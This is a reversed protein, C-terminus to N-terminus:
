RRNYEPVNSGGFIVRSPNSELSKLSREVQGLARKGDGVFGEVERVSKSMFSTIGSSIEATRKDINDVMVRLNKAAGATDAFFTDVKGANKALSGTFSELNNVTAALKKEDLAKLVRTIETLSVDFNGAASKADTLFAAINPSQAAITTTVMDINQLTSRVKAPEIAEIVADLKNSVAALKKAAESTEKLFSSINESNDGLSGTFKEVNKVSATLSTQNELVLRDVREMISDARGIITRAAQLLDQVASSEAFLVPVRGQDAPIIPANSLGGRMSISASGTLGSYELNVRTDTRIPTGPEVGVRAVVQRPDTPNLKLNTVSGVRIGNFLVGSGKVLGSISGDFMIDYNAFNRGEGIRSVWLVFGLLAVIISMLFAGIVTTNAKIDM